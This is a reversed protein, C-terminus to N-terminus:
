DWKTEKVKGVKTPKVTFLERFGSESRYKAICLDLHLGFRDAYEKLEIRLSPDSSLRPNARNFRWQEQISLKKDTQTKM